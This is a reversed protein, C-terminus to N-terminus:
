FPFQGHRGAITMWRTATFADIGWRGGFRGYGTSKVGGFPVQPADDITQNGVHVIGTRLRRAIAFGRRSDETIIGATLGYETDNAITIAEDDDEVPIVTVAPGFIEERHIRMDPRVNDLVTAPFRTGDPEGGGARVRAGDRVASSVLDAVRQATRENIVPGIVTAPDRPDGHPLAAAKAALRTTFEEAISRHVLVRDASMCIQGANHFAGFTAASVAYDLDADDLVLLANKGGLELIAPKLHQAALTGVTRGVGTSGTFNVVRVRDDAILTEAVAAADERANTVVNLVGDPLGAERFVDALFLGCAIPADESPKLVVTNGVALPIAISRVGLILPANWPAFAAVVGLPERVALSLEDATDTALVEGLPQTVAAAAERLIDAALGANFGAWSSVGGVEHAMVEIAEATRSAFIEAAKAFVHRRASPSTAAWAPFAAQAADVARTIDAPGGAAVTAYVEGTFPDLDDTTRGDLAPVDKGGIFLERKITM